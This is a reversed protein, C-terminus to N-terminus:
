KMVLYAVSSIMGENKRYDATKIDSFRTKMIRLQAMGM